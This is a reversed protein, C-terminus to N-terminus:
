VVCGCSYVTRVVALKACRIRVFDTLMWRYIAKTPHTMFVRGKFETEKLIYPLAASHDLHFSTSVCMLFAHACWSLLVCQTVLLLDITSMDVEDLYPLSATGTYAPHVGCDFQADIRWGAGSVATLTRTRQEDWDEV